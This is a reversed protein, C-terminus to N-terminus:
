IKNIQLKVVNKFTRLIIYLYGKINFKNYRYRCILEEKFGRWSLSSAGGLRFLVVIKNIHEFTCNAHLLKITLDGDAALRLNLDFGGVDFYKEKKLFLTPHNISSERYITNIKGVRILAEGSEHRKLINSYYADANTRTIADVYTQLVHSNYYIDDSNLYAFYTGTANQVGQHMGDYIGEDNKIIIKSIYPKYKEIVKEFDDTSNADKIIYEVKHYSQNIVSQITQELIRSNNYVTTIVSILPTSDLTVREPYSITQKHLSDFYKPAENILDKNLHSFYKQTSKFKVSLNYDADVKLYESQIPITKECLYIITRNEFSINQGAWVLEESWVGDVLIQLFYRLNYVYRIEIYNGDIVGKGITVNGPVIEIFDQLLLSVIEKYSINHM